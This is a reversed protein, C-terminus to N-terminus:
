DDKYDKRFIMAILMALNDDHTSMESNIYKDGFIEVTEQHEKRLAKITNKYVFRIEEILPIPCEYFEAIQADSYKERVLMSCIGHICVVAGKGQWYAPLRDKNMKVYDFIQKKQAQLIDKESM